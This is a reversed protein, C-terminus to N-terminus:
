TYVHTYIYICVYIYVCVYVYMYIYHMFMIGHHGWSTNKILVSDSIKGSPLCHAWLRPAKQWSPYWQNRQYRTRAWRIKTLIDWPLRHSRDCYRAVQGATHYLTFAPSPIMFRLSFWVSDHHNCYIQQRFCWSVWVLFKWFNPRRQRGRCRSAM